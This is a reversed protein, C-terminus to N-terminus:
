HWNWIISSSGLAGKLFNAKRTFDKYFQPESLKQWFFALTVLNQDNVVDAIYSSDRSSIKNSFEHIYIIVDYGKNWTVKIELLGLTALKASMMLISAM